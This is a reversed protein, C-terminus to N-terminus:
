AREFSARVARRLSDDTVVDVATRAMAKAAVLMAALGRESAACAAFGPQHCMTEGEDCIAVWPHIAPVRHSVDGMDTSGTGVSEDRVRPARGLARLHEGFREALTPNNRMDLYGQRWGFSVRVDSAQAAGRACRELTARLTPLEAARRARLSFECVARAPIINVADGGHKVYGHVRVGDPLHVRQGDVLRFTDMCATLASAGREPAVAAHAPRGEFTLECWLSALTDHALLDRDFPHFMIAADVGDFIGAALLKIKGGGGEEAPTGVIEVSAGAPLEAGLANVALWAGVAGAAILNHGCAHGIEPLADYEALISVRPGAGTGVRARFSTELGGLGRELRAGEAELLEGLWRAANHERFALEPEAHLRLAVARLRDSRREVEADLRRALTDADM